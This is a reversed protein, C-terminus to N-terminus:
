HFVFCPIGNSRVESKAELQLLGKGIRIEKSETERKYVSLFFWSLTVVGIEEVPTRTTPNREVDLRQDSPQNRRFRGIRNIMWGLWALAFIM